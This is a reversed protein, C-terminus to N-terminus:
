SFKSNLILQLGKSGHALCVRLRPCYECCYVESCGDRAFTCFDNAICKTCDNYLTCIDLLLAELEDVSIDEWNKMLALKLRELEGRLKEKMEKVRGKEVNGLWTRVYQM